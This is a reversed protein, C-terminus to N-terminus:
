PSSKKSTLSPRVTLHGNSNNLKLLFQFMTIFTTLHGLRLHWLCKNLTGSDNCVSMCVYLHEM